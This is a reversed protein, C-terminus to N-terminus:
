SASIASPGVNVDNPYGRSPYSAAANLTAADPMKSDAAVFPVDNSEGGDDAQYAGIEANMTWEEFTPKEWPKMGAATALETCAALEPLKARLGDNKGLARPKM